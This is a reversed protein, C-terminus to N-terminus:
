KVIVQKTITEDGVNFIFFYIGQRLQSSLDLNYDLIGNEVKLSEITDVLLGNFDYIKLKINRIGTTTEGTINMRGINPNPAISVKEMREERDSCKPAHILTEGRCDSYNPDTSFIYMPWSSDNTSIPGLQINTTNGTGSYTIAQGDAYGILEWPLGNTGLVHVTIFYFDDTPNEPTGNDNCDGVFVDASINCSFNCSTPAVVGFDLFCDVGYRIQFGESGNLVPYNGLDVNNEDGNGFYIILGNSNVVTWSEGQTSFVDLTINYYDDTPDLPTGNDSCSSISTLAELTCEEPPICLIYDEVEGCTPIDTPNFIPNESVIIRILEGGVIDINQLSIQTGGSNTFTNFYFESDVYVSMFLDAVTTTVNILGSSSNFFPICPDTYDGYNGPSNGTPNSYDTSLLEVNTIFSANGEVIIEIKEEYPDGCTDTGYIYVTFMNLGSSFPLTYVGTSSPGLEPSVYSVNTLNTTAIGVTNQNCLLTYTLSNTIDNSNAIIAVAKLSNVIVTVSEMYDKDCTDKGTIEVSFTELTSGSPLTYVGTISSGLEPSVYSVNTLNTTAIEVTNQNCLLTYTLSNTIDDGNATIIEPLPACGECVECTDSAVVTLENENTDGFQIITPGDIISIETCGQLIEVQIEFLPTDQSITTLLLGTSISFTIVDDSLEAYFSPNMPITSSTLSVFSIGTANSFKITGQMTLLDTDGPNSSATVPVSVIDGMMGQADGIDLTITQAQATIFGFLIIFLIYSLNKM